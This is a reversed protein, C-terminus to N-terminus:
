WARGARKEPNRGWNRPWGHGSGEVLSGRDRTPGPVLCGRQHVTDVALPFLPLDLSDAISERWGTVAGAVDSGDSRDGRDCLHVSSM